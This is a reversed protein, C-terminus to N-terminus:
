CWVWGYYPADINNCRTEKFYWGVSKVVDIIGWFCTRKLSNNYPNPRLITRTRSTKDNINAASACLICRSLVFLYRYYKAGSNM